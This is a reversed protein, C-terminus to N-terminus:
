EKGDILDAVHSENIDEQKQFIVEELMILKATLKQNHTYVSATTEEENFLIITERELKSLSM